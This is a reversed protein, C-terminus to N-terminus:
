RSWAPSDPMVSGGAGSVKVFNGLQMAPGVASMGSDPSITSQSTSITATMPVSVVPTATASAHLTTAPRVRPWSTESRATWNVPTGGCNENPFLKAL